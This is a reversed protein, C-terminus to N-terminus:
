ISQHLQCITSIQALGADYCFFFFFFNLFFFFFFILISVSPFQKLMERKEWLIKKEENTLVHLSDKGLIEPITAADVPRVNGVTFARSLTAETEPDEM